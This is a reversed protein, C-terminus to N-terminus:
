TEGARKKTGKMQRLAIELRTPERRRAWRIVHLPPLERRQICRDLIQLLEDDTKADM